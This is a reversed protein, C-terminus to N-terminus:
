EGVPAAGQRRELGELLTKRPEDQAREVELLAPVLEPHDDAFAEVEAVTHEAPDFPQVVDGGQRPQSVEVPAFVSRTAAMRGPQNQAFERRYARMAAEREPSFRNAIVFDDRDEASMEVAEVAEGVPDQQGQQDQKKTAM